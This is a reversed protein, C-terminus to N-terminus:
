RLARGGRGGEARGDAGDAAGPGLRHAVETLLQPYCVALNYSEFLPLLVEKLKLSQLLCPSENGMEHSHHRVDDPDVLVLLRPIEEVLQV